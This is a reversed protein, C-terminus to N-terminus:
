WNWIEIINVYTFLYHFNNHIKYWSIQYYFQDNLAVKTCSLCITRPMSLLSCEAIKGTRHSNHLDSSAYRPMISTHASIDTDRHHNTITGNLMFFIGQLIDLTWRSLETASNLYRCFPQHCPLQTPWHGILHSHQPVNQFSKRTPRTKRSDGFNFTPRTKRSWFTPRTKRSEFM